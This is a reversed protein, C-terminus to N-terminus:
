KCPCAGNRSAAFWAIKFTTICNWIPINYGMETNRGLFQKQIQEATHQVFQSVVRLTKVVDELNRNKM